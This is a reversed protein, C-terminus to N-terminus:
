LRVRLVTGLIHIDGPRGRGDNQRMYYVDGTLHKNFARSIGGAIRNRTWAGASWDYFVEDSVFVRFQKDAINIPHEVLLRNRYQTFNVPDRWRREFLNRDTILFRKLLPARVIAAFSLRNEYARQHPTPQTAIYLYFPSLTLYQNVKFTFGGGARENVFDTIRHGIRLQTSLFLEVRSNVPVTIQVEPWFQTDEQSALPQSQAFIATACVLILAGACLLVPIKRAFRVFKFQLSMLMRM